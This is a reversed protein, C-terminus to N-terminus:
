RNEGLSTPQSIPSSSTPWPAVRRSPRAPEIRSSYSMTWTGFRIRFMPSTRLYDLGAGGLRGDALVAILAPEDVVSGRAVNILIRTPGLADLVSRSVLGRTAPGGSVAIVLFDSDKALQENAGISGAVRHVAACKPRM